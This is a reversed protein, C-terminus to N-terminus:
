PVRAVHIREPSSLEVPDYKGWSGGSVEKESREGVYMCMGVTRHGLGM